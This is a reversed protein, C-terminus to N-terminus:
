APPYVIIRGNVDFDFEALEGPRVEDDTGLAVSVKQVNFKMVYLTLELIQEPTFHTRLADTLASDIQDPQSMLADALQLAV